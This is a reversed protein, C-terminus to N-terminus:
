SRSRRRSKDASRYFLEGIVVSIQPVAIDVHRQRNISIPLVQHCNHPGAGTIKGALRNVIESQAAAVRFFAFQDRGNAITAKGTEAPRFITTAVV